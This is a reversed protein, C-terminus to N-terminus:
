AATQAVQMKALRRIMIRSMTAYVLTESTEPLREYDKSLRRWRNLWGFTREVVWRHPLLVFGKADDPRKVIELVWHYFQKVWNVLKGAYGGDAWVLQLRPFRTKVKEFLLKAGDRDQIDATLVMVFLLLGMTDVLIHRKRGKVQKGADYGRETCEETTKVSQSDIAGASPETERGSAYRLDERLKDNITAWLGSKRWQSFYSYVTRWAPLDHPLMRWQCGTRIIYFIANLIERLDVTRKRGRVKEAPMFPELLDWENDSLDTSYSKRTM